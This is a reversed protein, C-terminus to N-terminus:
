KLLLNIQRDLERQFRDNSVTDLAQQTVKASFMGPLSVTLVPVIPYRGKGQRVFVGKFGTELAGKITQIFAHRIIKRSGKKISVSVGSKVQRAGFGIVNFPRGSAELIARLTNQTSKRKKFAKKLGSLSVNYTERIKRKAEIEAGDIAYNVARSMALRLKGKAALELQSSFRHANSSVELRIM